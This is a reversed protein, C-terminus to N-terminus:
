KLILCSQLRKRDKSLWDPAWGYVCWHLFEWHCKCLFLFIAISFLVFFDLRAYISSQTKLPPGPTQKEVNWCFSPGVWKKNRIWIHIKVNLVIVPTARSARYSPRSMKFYIWNPQLKISSKSACLQVHVGIRKVPLRPLVLHSRACISIFPPKLSHPRAWKVALPMRPLSLSCFVCLWVNVTYVCM